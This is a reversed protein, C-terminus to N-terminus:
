FIYIPVGGEVTSLPPLTPPVPEVGPQPVLIGCAM